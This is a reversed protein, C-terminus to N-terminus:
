GHADGHKKRREPAHKKRPDLPTQAYDPVRLKFSLRDVPPPPELELELTGVKEEPRKKSM